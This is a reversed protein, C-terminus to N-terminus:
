ISEAAGQAQKTTINGVLENLEMKLARLRELSFGTRQVLQRPVCSMEDKLNHALDSLLVKLIEDGERHVVVYDLKELGVILTNLKDKYEIDLHSRIESLTLESEEFLMLIILYQLYNIGYKSFIPEYLKMVMKTAHYLPFCVQNNLRLVQM